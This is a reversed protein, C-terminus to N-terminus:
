SPRSPPDTLRHTAAALVAPDAARVTVVDGAALETDAAPIVLRDERELSSLLVGPPLGLDRVRHGVGLSGPALTVREAVAQNRLRGALIQAEAQDAVEPTGAYLLVDDGGKLMTEGRPVLVAQARHIVVVVAGAPLGLTSVHAGSAPWDPPLHVQRFTGNDTDEADQLLEVRHQTELTVVTRNYYVRLVDDRSVTGVVHTADTGVPLVELEQLAFRRMADDLTLGPPLTGVTRALRGVPADLLNATVAELLRQDEVIGAFSGDRRFVPLARQNETRMRTMALRAPEDVFLRDGVPRLAASLPVRQLPRVDTGRLIRVGHRSLKVTYMSDRALSGQVLYSIGCAAMVGVTLHYDGTMELIIVSATLPARAAGAFVAGMGSVAYLATAPALAPTVAHVLIGFAGGLTVGLYLSPAFVGGSGGSGITVLTAVYKGALLGLLLWLGFDGQVAGQMTGYGVGLVDPLALGLLGILLGGCVAQWAWHVHWRQSFEEVFDLGYTYALAVGGAAVGLLLLLLLSLPHNFQYDPAPLVPQNGLISRFVTVGTVSAVFVPVLTGMGYSGLVVEMGFLAGAIPANFTAGIGAAAGCAVLLSTYQDGLRLFQGVSSGFAAGILAIPGERGVSGDAGITIAPALIGFLGVRPHIRGRRLALAELIQPVGHGRVEPAFRHCILGVVLLGLVPVVVLFWHEAISGAFSLGHQDLGTVFFWRAAAIMKRFVVAGLGGVVGTLLALAVLIAPEKLPTAHLAQWWRGTSRAEARLNPVASPDSGAHSPLLQVKVEDLPSM